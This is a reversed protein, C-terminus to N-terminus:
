VYYEEKIFYEILAQERAEQPKKFFNTQFFHRLEGYWMDDYDRKIEIGLADCAQSLLLPYDTSIWRSNEGLIQHPFGYYTGDPVYLRDRKIEFEKVVGCCNKILEINM